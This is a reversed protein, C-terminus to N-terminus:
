KKRFQNIKKKCFIIDIDYMNSGEGIGSDIDPLSAIINKSISDVTGAVGIILILVGIIVALPLAVFKLIFPALFKMAKRKVQNKALSGLISM